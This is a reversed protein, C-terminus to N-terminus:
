SAESLVATLQRRDVTGPHQGALKVATALDRTPLWGIAAEICEDNSHLRFCGAHNAAEARVTSREDIVMDLNRGAAILHMGSGSDVANWKALLAATSHRVEATAQDLGDILLLLEPRTVHYRHRRETEESLWQLLELAFGAETALETLAHPLAELCTLQQNNFDLAVIQLQSPRSTLALSLLLTRLLESKGCGAPGEVLLHSTNRNSLALTLPGGEVSMGIVATLPELQGMANMLPLLRLDDEPQGLVEMALGGIERAVRIQEAGLATAVAPGAGELADIQTSGLPTIHYRVRGERVNGGNVRVPLDLSSLTREIRDAQRNLWVQGIAQHTMM